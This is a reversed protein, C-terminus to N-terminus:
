ILEWSAGYRVEHCLMGALGATPILPISTVLVTRGLSPDWGTGPALAVCLM